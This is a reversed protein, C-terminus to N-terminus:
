VFKFSLSRLMAMKMQDTFIMNGHIRPAKRIVELHRDHVYILGCYDPVEDLKVLGSPVAYSFYNPRSAVCVAEKYQLCGILWRTHTRDRAFPSACGIEEVPYKLTYERAPAQWDRHVEGKGSLNLHRKVKKFDAFFDSRSVKVEVEHLLGKKTVAIFDSEGCYALMNTNNHIACTCNGATLFHKYLQTTIHKSTM